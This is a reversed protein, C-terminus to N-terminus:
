LRRIDIDVDKNQQYLPYIRRIKDIRLQGFNTVSYLEEISLDVLEGVENIGIRKLGNIISGDSFLDEVRDYFKKLIIKYKIKNIYNILKENIDDIDLDHNNYICGRLILIEYKSMNLKSHKWYRIKNDCRSLLFAEIDEILCEYIYPNECKLRTLMVIM